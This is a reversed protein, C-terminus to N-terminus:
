TSVGGLKDARGELERVWGELVAANEKMRGAGEGVVKEVKELGERWERIEERVSQQREEVRALTQSATGADAHLARLSRLRDLTAPLLPALSEITPLTGYLAHIKAINDPDSLAAANPGQTNTPDQSSPGSTSREQGTITAANAAAKRASELSEADSTLQRIQRSLSDLSSDTSTTLANLQRDLIDLTPLLSKATPRDQTPLPLSDIGLASELASLRAEFATVKSLTHNSNYTPAYTLTYTTSSDTTPASQARQSSPASKSPPASPSSTAAALRKTLRSAAGREGGFGSTSRVTELLQELAEFEQTGEGDLERQVGNGLKQKEVEGKVEAIERRLRALKRQLSEEEESDSSSGDGNKGDQARM